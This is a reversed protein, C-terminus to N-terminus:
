HCASLCVPVYPYVTAMEVYQCTKDGGFFFGDRQAQSPPSHRQWAYSLKVTPRPQLRELLAIHSVLSSCVHTPLVPHYGPVPLRASPSAPSPPPLHVVMCAFFSFRWLLVEVILSLGQWFLAATTQTAASFPLFVPTGM